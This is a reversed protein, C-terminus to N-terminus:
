ESSAPTEQKARAGRGIFVAAILFVWGAASLMGTVLGGYGYFLSLRSIPQQFKWLAPFLSLLINALNALIFTSMAIILLTSVTPHTKNRIAAIVLVVIYVALFPLQMLLTRFLQQSVMM